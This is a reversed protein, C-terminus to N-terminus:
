YMNLNYQETMYECIKMGRFSNGKSDLPPSYIAIGMLNPIIVLICGSVGSKSPLGVACSWAGSYDYMGCSSM